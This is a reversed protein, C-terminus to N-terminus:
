SCRSSWIATSTRTCATTTARGRIQPDAADAAGPGGYPVGCSLRRTRGSVTRRRRLRERWRNAIPALQPYIAQRLAEVMDPLPYRLYKYEGRGFGHRQM